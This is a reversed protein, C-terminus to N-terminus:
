KVKTTREESESTHKELEADLSALNTAIKNVKLRQHAPQIADV